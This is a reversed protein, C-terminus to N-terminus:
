QQLPLLPVPRESTLGTGRAGTSTGKKPHPAATPSRDWRGTGRCAGWPSALWGTCCWCGVVQPQGPNIPCSPRHRPVPGGKKHWPRPPQAPAAGWIRSSSVPPPLPTETAVPLQQPPHHAGARAGRGPGHHSPEGRAATAHHSKHASRRRSCPLLLGRSLERAAAHCGPLTPLHGRDGRSPPALGQCRGGGHACPSAPSTRPAFSGGTAKPQEPADGVGRVGAFGRAVSPTIRCREHVRAPQGWPGRRTVTITGTM